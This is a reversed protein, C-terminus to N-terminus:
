MGGPHLSFSTINRHKLKYALAISYLMNATKVQGYSEWANYKAGNQLNMNSFM